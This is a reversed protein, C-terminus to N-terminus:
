RGSPAVSQLVSMTELLITNPQSKRQSRPLLEAVSPMPRFPTKTLQFSMKKTDDDSLGIRDILRDMQTM